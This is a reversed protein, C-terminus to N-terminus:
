WDQLLYSLGGPVLGEFVFLCVLFDLDPTTLFGLGLYTAAPAPWLPLSGPRTCHLVLATPSVCCCLALSSLHTLPVLLAVRQLSIINSCCCPLSVLRLVAKLLFGWCPQLGLNPYEKAVLLLLVWRFSFKDLNPRGSEWLNLDLLPSLIFVILWM